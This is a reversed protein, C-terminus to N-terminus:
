PTTDEPRPAPTEHAMTSSTPGKGPHAAFFAEEALFYQDQTMPGRDRARRESWRQFATIPSEPTQQAAALALVHLLQAACDGMGWGQGIRYSDGHKKHQEAEAQWKEALARLDDPPTM